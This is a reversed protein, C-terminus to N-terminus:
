TNPTKPLLSPVTTHIRRKTVLQLCKRVRKRLAVIRDLRDARFEGRETRQGALGIESRQGDGVNRIGVADLQLRQLEIQLLISIVARKVLPDRVLDQIIENGCAFRPLHLQQSSEGGAASNARIDDDFVRRRQLSARDAERRDEHRRNTSVSRPPKPLSA